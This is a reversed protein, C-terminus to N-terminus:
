NVPKLESNSSPNWHNDKDKFYYVEINQKDFPEEIRVVQQSEINILYKYGSYMYYTKNYKNLIEENFQKVPLIFGNSIVKDNEFEINLNYEEYYLMYESDLDQDIVYESPTGLVDIVKELSDGITIGYLYFSTQNYSFLVDNKKETTKSTTLEKIRTELALSDVSSNEESTKSTDDNSVDNQISSIQNNKKLDFYKNISINTYYKISIHNDMLQPKKKTLEELDKLTKQYTKAYEIYEVPLEEIVQFEKSFGNNLVYSEKGKRVVELKISGTGNYEGSVTNLILQTQGSQVLYKHDRIKQNVTGYFYYANELEEETYPTASVIKNLSDNLNEFGQEIRVISEFDQIADEVEKILNSLDENSDIKYLIELYLLADNWLDNEIFYNFLKNLFNINSDEYSKYLTSIALEIENKKNSDNKNSEIFLQLANYDQNKTLTKVDIEADEIEDIKIPEKVENPTEQCGILLLISLSLGVIYNLKM